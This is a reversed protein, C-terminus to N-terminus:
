KVRIVKRVGDVKRMAACLRTVHKVDTVKVDLECSFVEGHAEINLRRM